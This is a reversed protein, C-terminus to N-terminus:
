TKGNFFIYVHKYVFIIGMTSFNFYIFLSGPGANNISPQQLQHQMPVVMQDVVGSKSVSVNPPSQLSGAQGKLGGGMAVLQTKAGQLCVSFFIFLYESITLLVM